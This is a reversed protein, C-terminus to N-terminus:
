SCLLLLSQLVLDLPMPGVLPMPHEFSVMGEVTFVRVTELWFVPAGFIKVWHTLVGGPLGMVCLCIGSGLKALIAWDKCPSSEGCMVILREGSSIVGGPRKSPIAMAVIVDMCICCCANGKHVFHHGRHAKYTQPRGRHCNVAWHRGQFIKQVRVLHPGGKCNM